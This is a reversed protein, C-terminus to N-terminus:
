LLHAGYGHLFNGLKSSWCETRDNKDICRYPQDSSPDDVLYWGGGAVITKLDKKAISKM